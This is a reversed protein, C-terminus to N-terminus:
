RRGHTLLSRSAVLMKCEESAKIIAILDAQFVTAHPPLGYSLENVLVENEFIAVGSGVGSALKSEDTFVTIRWHELSVEFLQSAEEWDIFLAMSPHVKWREAKRQIGDARIHLPDIEIDNNM